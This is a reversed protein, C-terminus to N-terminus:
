FRDNLSNSVDEVNETKEQKKDKKEDIDKFDEKLDNHMQKMREKQKQKSKKKRAFLFSLIDLVLQWLTKDKAMKDLVKAQKLLYM